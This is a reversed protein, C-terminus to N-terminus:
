VLGVTYMKGKIEPSGIKKCFRWKKESFKRLFKRRWFRTAGLLVEVNKLSFQSIWFNV